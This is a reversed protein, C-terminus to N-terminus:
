GLHPSLAEISRFRHHEMHGLDTGDDGSLVGYKASNTALEHFAIGLYQVANPSLVLPHARCTSLTAGRQFPQAQAVLLEFVTAGKWDAAVLLDHSRSLAM